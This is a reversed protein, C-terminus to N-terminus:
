LAAAGSEAAPEPLYGQERAHIHVVLLSRLATLDRTLRNRFYWPWTHFSYDVRNQSVDMYLARMAEAFERLGAVTVDYMPVWGVAEIVGENQDVFLERLSREKIGRAVTYEV